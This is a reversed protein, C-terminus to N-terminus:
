VNLHLYSHSFSKIGFQYPPWSRGRGQLSAESQGEHGVTLFSSPQRQIVLFYSKKFLNINHQQM